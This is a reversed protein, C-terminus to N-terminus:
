KPGFIFHPTNGQFRHTLALYCYSCEYPCGCAWNLIWFHPCVIGESTKDFLRISM